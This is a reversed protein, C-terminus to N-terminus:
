RKGRQQAQKRKGDPNLIQMMEEQKALQYASPNTNTGGAQRHKCFRNELFDTSLKSWNVEIKELPVTLSLVAFTAKTIEVLGTFTEKVDRFIQLCAIVM